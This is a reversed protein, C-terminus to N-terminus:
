LLELERLLSGPFSPLYSNAACQLVRREAQMYQLPAIYLMYQTASYYFLLRRQQAVAQALQTTKNPAGAGPAYRVKLLSAQAPTRQASTEHHAHRTTSDACAVVKSHAYMLKPACAWTSASAVICLIDFCGTRSRSSQCGAGGGHLGAHLRLEDM